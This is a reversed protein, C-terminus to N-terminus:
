QNYYIKKCFKCTVEHDKELGLFRWGGVDIGCVTTVGDKSIYHTRGYTRGQRDITRVVRLGKGIDYDPADHTRRLVDDVHEISRVQQGHPLRRIYGNLDDTVVITETKRRVNGHVIRWRDVGSAYRTDDGDDDDERTVESVSIIECEKALDRRLQEVFDALTDAECCYSYSTGRLGRAKALYLM